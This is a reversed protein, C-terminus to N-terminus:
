IQCYRTGIDDIDDMDDGRDNSKMRTHLMSFGVFSFVYGGLRALTYSRLISRRSGGNIGASIVRQLSVFSSIYVTVAVDIQRFPGPGCRWDTAFRIVVGGM